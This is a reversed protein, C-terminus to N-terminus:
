SIGSIFFVQIVTIAGAVGIITASAKSHNTTEVYNQM